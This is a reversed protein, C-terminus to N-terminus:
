SHVKSYKLIDKNVSVLVQSSELLQVLLTNQYALTSNIDSSKSPKDMAAEAPAPAAATAAPSPRTEEPPVASPSEIKTQVPPTSRAPPAQTTAPKANVQNPRLMEEVKKNDSSFTDYLWGGLTNERGTMKSIFGDILPNVIKDGIEYGAFAAGVVGLGKALFGLTSGVRGVTGGLEKGAAGVGKSSKGFADTLLSSGSKVALYITGLAGAVMAGVGIWSRTSSEFRDINLKLMDNFAALGATAINIQSNLPRFAQEPTSLFREWQTQLSSVGAASERAAETQQRTARSLRGGTESLSRFMSIARSAEPNKALRQAELAEVKARNQQIKISIDSARRLAEEQSITGRAASQFIQQLQVAEAGLGATNLTKFIDENATSVSSAFKMVLDKVDSDEFANAIGRIRETAEPGLRAALVWAENTKSLTLNNQKLKEISQGTLQSLNRIDKGFRIADNSLQEASKNRIDSYSSESEILTGILDAQQESNYGLRTLELNSKSITKAFKSIGVANISQTYKDVVKQFTELRLGTLTVMQQMSEFSETTSNNGNLLNIGSQYLDDSISVYSTFVDKVKDGVGVIGSTIKQQLLELARSKKSRNEKDKYEKDEEKDRKRKKGNEENTRKLHKALKDLEDNVQKPNTTGDGGAGKCCKIAQALAKSQVGLLKNLLKEIDEATKQTAWPPIGNLAEAFAGEAAGTIFVNNDAM